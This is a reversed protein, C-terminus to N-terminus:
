KLLSTLKSNIEEIPIDRAIIVGSPDILFFTPFNSVNFITAVDREGESYDSYIPWSIALERTLSEIDNKSKLSFLIDVISLNNPFNDKLKKRVEVSKTYNGNKGNGVSLLLYKGRYDSLKVSDGKLSEFRLDPLIEGVKSNKIGELRHWIKQGGYSRKIDESLLNYVREAYIENGTGTCNFLYNLSIQSDPREKVFNEGFEQRKAKWFEVQKDYREIVWKAEKREKAGKLGMAAKLEENYYKDYYKHFLKDEDQVKSGIIEYDYREVDGKIVINNNDLWFSENIMNEGNSLSCYVPTQVNGEFEFEGNKVESTLIVWNEKGNHNSPRYRLKMTGSSLGKVHGKIKFGPVQVQANNYPIMNKASLPSIGILANILFFGTLKIKM